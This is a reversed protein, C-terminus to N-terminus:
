SSGDREVRIKITANTRMRAEYDSIITSRDRQYRAIIEDRQQPTDVIEKCVDKTEVCRGYEGDHYEKGHTFKVVYKGSSEIYEAVIHYGLKEVDFFPNFSLGQKLREWFGM